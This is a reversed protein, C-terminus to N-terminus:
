GAHHRRRLRPKAPENAHILDESVGSPARLAWGVIEELAQGTAQNFAQV